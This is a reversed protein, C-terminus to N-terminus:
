KRNKLTLSLTQRMCSVASVTNLDVNKSLFSNLRFIRFNVTALMGSNLRSQIEEHICNQNRVAKALYKLKAVDTFSADYIKLNYKQGANQHRFIFVYM